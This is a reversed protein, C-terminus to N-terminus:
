SAVVLHVGRLQAAELTSATDSDVVIRPDLHNPQNPGFDATDGYGLHTRSFGREILQGEVPYLPGPRIVYRPHRCEECLEGFETGSAEADVYVVREVRMIAFGATTPLPVFSVGPIGDCAEIFAVSAM